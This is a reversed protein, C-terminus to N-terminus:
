DPNKHLENDLRFVSQLLNCLSVTTTISAQQSFGSILGWLNHSEAVIMITRLNVIM